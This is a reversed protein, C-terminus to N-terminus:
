LYDRSCRVSGRDARGGGLGVRVGDGLEDGRGGRRALAPRRGAPGVAGVDQVGDGVREVRRAVVEDRERDRLRVQASPRSRPSSSRM